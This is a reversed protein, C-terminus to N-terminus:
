KIIRSEKKLFRAFKISLDILTRNSSFNCKPNYEKNLYFMLENVSIDLKDSIFKLEFNVQNSRFANIRIKRLADNRKMQNALILSSLHFKKKDYNFKRILWFGEIFKTLRSEYHKHGYDIWGIDNKLIKKANTINYNIYNLFDYKKQKYFLSYIIKYKFIDTLPFKKIFRDDFKKSISKIYKTDSAHYAWDLPERLSETVYNYGTLIHPIKENKSFEYISSFIAHDQAIDLSPINAKFLSLQLSRMAEWDVVITHLDLKLNKCLYYINKIAISSNWGTDVHVLLPKLNLNKKVFYTLFSSDIGGSVGIICDYSNKKLENFKLIENVSNKIYKKDNLKKKWIPLITSKFNSCHNCIGNSQIKVTVISDDLICTKCINM